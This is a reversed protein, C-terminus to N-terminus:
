GRVKEKKSTREKSIKEMLLIRDAVIHFAAHNIALRLSDNFEENRNREEAFGRLRSLHMAPYAQRTRKGIKKGSGKIL